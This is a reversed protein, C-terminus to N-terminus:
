VIIYFVIVNSFCSFHQRFVICLRTKEKNKSHEVYNCTVNHKKELFGLGLSATKNRTSFLKVEMRFFKEQMAHCWEM